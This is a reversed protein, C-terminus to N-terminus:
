LERTSGHSLPYRSFEINNNTWTLEALINSTLRKTLPVNQLLSSSVERMANESLDLDVLNTLRSFAEPEIESIQCYSCYFRQLNTISMKVFIQFLSYFENETLTTESFSLIEPQAKFPTFHFECM